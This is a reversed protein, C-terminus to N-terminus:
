ATPNQWHLRAIHELEAVRQELDAQPQPTSCEPVAEDAMKARHEANLRACRNTMTEACGGAELMLKSVTDVLWWWSRQVNPVVVYREGPKRAEALADKHRGLMAGYEERECNLTEQLEVVRKEAREARDRWTVVPGATYNSDVVASYDYPHEDAGLKLADLLGNGAM